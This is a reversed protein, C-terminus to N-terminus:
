VLSKAALIERFARAVSAPDPVALLARIVAIGDAGADVCARASETGIGGLAYVLLDGSALTRARAIAALGRPPGKGHVAFIPSVLVADAYAELAKVVAEDTHAALSVFAGAGMIARAEAVTTRQAAVVGLHVGDAAVDRALHADGNVVFHVGVNHTVARLRMAFARLSSPDRKKDRLQVALAGVPLASAAAEVACVIVDDAYAPDTVLVVRPSM